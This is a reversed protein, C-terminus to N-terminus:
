PRRIADWADCLDQKVHAEDHPELDLVHTTDRATSYAPWGPDGARAFNGWADMVIKSLPQERESLSIGGDTNGFVFWLDVSHTAGLAHAKEDDLAHTWEYTFVTRGRAFAARAARRDNCAFIGDTVVDTLVDKPTPRDYRALIKSAGAGFVEDVFGQLEDPTVSEFGLTHLVGEAENWGILLPVDASEGRAIADLPVRPLTDGDVVPGWWVGPHLLLGRKFPMAHVITDLPAARMCADDDPDCGIARAFDAGQANAAAQDFYLADACAGSQMIARAFLGRSGPMALQACVSWAGASEGFITVRAPDGGFARANRQVWALAARQDLLGFNTGLSPRSIWGLPGLRYEIGIVIVGTRKALKAGDYIADTAAGQYFAGGHIWVMVPARDAGDPTWVNLTLCDESSVRTFGGTDPQACAPAPKTADRPTPWSAVDGPPKWRDAHAYPIGLFVRVGDGASGVVAGRDTVVTLPDIKPATIARPESCAILLSVLLAVRM